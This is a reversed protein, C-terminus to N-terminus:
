KFRHLPLPLGGGVFLVRAGAVSLRCNGSNRKGKQCSRLFVVSVSDVLENKQYNLISM